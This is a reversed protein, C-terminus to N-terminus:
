IYNRPTSKENPYFDMVSALHIVFSNKTAHKRFTKEITEISRVDFSESESRACKIVRYQSDLQLNAVLNKGIFGTSGTVFVVTPSSTEM